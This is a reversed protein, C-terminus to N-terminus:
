STTLTPQLDLVQDAIQQMMDLDHFVGIMTTGQKKMEQLLSIVNAKSRPDLSATPEDLILLRPRVILARALNVRQQEGGSFTTPYARWLSRPINLAALLEEAQRHATEEAQGALLAREAVIDLTPIRPIVRLFQSVYGIEEQRLRSVIRESAQALDIEGYRSSRFLIAGSSPLYTRYICKLISSKGVGSTGKIGLFEGEAVSFSLERM